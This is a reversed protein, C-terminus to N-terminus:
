VVVVARSSSRGPTLRAGAAKPKKAISRKPTAKIPLIPKKLEPQALAARAAADEAVLKAVRRVAREQTKQERRRAQHAVVFRAQTTYRTKKPVRVTAGSQDNQETADLIAAAGEDAERKRAMTRVVNEVAKQIEPHATTYPM